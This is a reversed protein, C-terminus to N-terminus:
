KKKTPEGKKLMGRLVRAATEADKGTLNFRETLQEASSKKKKPIGAIMGTVPDIEGSGGPLHHISGSTASKGGMSPLTLTGGRKTWFGIAGLVVLLGVIIILLQTIEESFTM